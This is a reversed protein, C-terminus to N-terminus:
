AEEVEDVRSSGAMAGETDYTAVRFALVGGREPLRSLQKKQLLHIKTVSIEGL